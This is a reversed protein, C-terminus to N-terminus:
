STVRITATSTKGDVTATITAKGNKVPHVVGDEDITGVEADSSTFKAAATRDGTLQEKAVSEVLLQQRAHPGVLATEAPILAYSPDNAAQVSACVVVVGIVAGIQLWSSPSFRDM